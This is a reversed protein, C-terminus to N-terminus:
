RRDWKKLREDNIEQRTWTRGGGGLGKAEDMAKFARRMAEQYRIEAEVMEALTQTVLGSVSTGKRAALEKAAQIIAEDLQITLNRKRGSRELGVSKAM